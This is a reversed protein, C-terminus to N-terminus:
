KKGKGNPIIGSFIKNLGSVRGELDKCKILFRVIECYITQLIFADKLLNLIFNKRQM